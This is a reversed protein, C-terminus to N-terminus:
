MDVVRANLRVNQGCMVCYMMEAPVMSGCRPCFTGFLCLVLFCSLAKEVDSGAVKARLRLYMSAAKGLRFVLRDDGSERMECVQLLFLCVRKGANELRSAGRRHAILM